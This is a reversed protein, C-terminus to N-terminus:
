TPNETENSPVEKLALEREEKRVETFVSRFLDKDIAILEEKGREYAVYAANIATSKQERIAKLRKKMSARETAHVLVYGVDIVELVDGLKVKTWPAPAEFGEPMPELCKWTVIPDM